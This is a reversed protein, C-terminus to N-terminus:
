EDDRNLAFLMVFNVFCMALLWYLGVLYLFDAPIPLVVVVSILQIVSLAVAISILTITLTRPMERGLHPRFRKFVWYSLFLHTFAFAVLSFELSLAQNLGSSVVVQPLLAFMVVAIPEFLVNQMLVHQLSTSIRDRNIAAVIAVFGVVAVAVEAITEYIDGM